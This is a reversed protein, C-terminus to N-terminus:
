EILCSLNYHLAGRRRQRQVMDSLDSSELDDKYKTFFKDIEELEDIPFSFQLTQKGNMSSCLQWQLLGVSYLIGCAAGSVQIQKKLLDRGFLFEIIVNRERCIAILEAVLDLDMVSNRDDSELLSFSVMLANEFATRFRHNCALKAYLYYSLNIHLSGDLLSALNNEASYFAHM